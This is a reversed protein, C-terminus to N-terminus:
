PTTQTIYDLLESFEETREPTKDIVSLKEPKFNFEEIRETKPNRYCARISYTSNVDTEVIVANVTTPLPTFTEKERRSLNNEIAENYKFESIDLTAFDGARGAFEESINM